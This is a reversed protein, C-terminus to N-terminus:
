SAERKIRTPRRELVGGCRECRECNARMELMM